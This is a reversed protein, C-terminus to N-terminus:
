KPGDYRSFFDLNRRWVELSPLHPICRFCIHVLCKHSLFRFNLGHDFIVLIHTYSSDKITSSCGNQGSNRSSYVKM